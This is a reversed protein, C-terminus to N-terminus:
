KTSLVKFPVFKKKEIKYVTMQQLTNDGNSDFSLTGIAGDYNRTELVAKRIAERDKKKVKDIAALVVGASEYAFLAYGEPAQKFEAQFNKIFAAGKGTLLTTDVGGTTVYCNKVAEEGADEIFSEEFCGDPVLLPIKASAAAVAKAIQPGNTVATGGFFILDPTLSKIKAVLKGFQTEKHDVSVHGLIKVKRETCQKAFDGAISKGYTENDDLIFVSKAKLEQVAFNAALAGQSGDFPCVRCFTVKDTPRYIGPEGDQNDAAKRTLGTNTAAASVQIMGAKNLMPMSVMAAGSNFPGLLAMVDADAIAKNANRAELEATWRGDEGADDWDLLEIRFGGAIGSREKIALQIGKVMSDTQEKASGTRPLNSVLKITEKPAPAALLAGAPLTAASLLFRRRDMSLLM